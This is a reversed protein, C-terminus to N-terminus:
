SASDPMPEAGADVQGYREMKRYLTRRDLGLLRAAQSKNDGTLNLVQEIYRREVEELPLIHEPHLDPADTRVPTKFGRIREPLDMPTVHDTQTLTVAREICNQLQRVNGPFDYNLLLHAAENTLGKVDREMRAAFTQIFHSALVLIDNGRSRLPPVNIQVVNLRYYLDERFTGREVEAELDRNTAAVIRVDVPIERAAGIPRITREQLVRLLKPQMDMPMEGIEDLFLTGGDAQEFLGARANRADTFAGKVHGFLESELLNGPVAACNIAVFRKDARSTGDHLARAVLEKGTGSEGCILVSAPTGRVRRILDYVKQMGASNGVLSGPVSKERLIGELEKLQVRVQRHELARQVAVTVLEKDIPKTIFDYAGARIASIAASLSGQGTVVIVPVGPQMKAVLKCIDLGSSAGLNLDTLVVDFLNGALKEAAEAEDFTATVSYGLSRLIGGLLECVDPEDDVLLIKGSMGNEAGRM